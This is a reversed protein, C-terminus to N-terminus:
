KKFISLFTKFIIRLDLFISQNYYYWLNMKVKDPFIVADNYSLPDIQEVLLKEEQAYKLSAESTLGPKLQLIKRAEGELVDYYGAVDPRPGVFSMQGLLINFLQPLEDLKTKRLFAGFPSLRSVGKRMSKIKFITFPKGYQGIREQFFLGFSRTDISAVFICLIIIWICFLLSLLALAIDFLRKITILKYIKKPCIIILM